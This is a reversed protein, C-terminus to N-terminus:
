GMSKSWSDKLKSLRDIVGDSIEDVGSSPLGIILGDCYMVDVVIAVGIGTNPSRAAGTNLEDFGLSITRYKLWSSSRNLWHATAVSAALFFYTM